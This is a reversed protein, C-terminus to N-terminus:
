LLANLLASAPHTLNQASFRGAQCRCSFGTALLAPVHQQEVKSRWNQDYLTQSIAMNETEHGFLGAMGCCGLNEVQLIMGFRAFAAVWATVASPALSRETCHQALRYRTSAVPLQPLRDAADELWEPLTQVTWGAERGLAKPYEHRFMLTTAPDLGLLVAGADSLRRLDRDMREATRQFAEMKGLVHHVKGSPRYALVFVTQGLKQLLRAHDLAVQADYFPVFPDQVIVVPNRARRAVIAEASLTDISLDRLGNQFARGQPEPLDALGMIRAVGKQVIKRRMMPRIIPAAWAMAPVAAEVRALLRHSFPRPHRQHYWDLFASRMDPIDIRVPCGGGACAKCSLCKDMSQKLGPVIAQLGAEDNLSRLRLWERLLAARGKPSYRRDMTARYSPCMVAASDLGFCNGNGNCHLARAFDDRAQPDIVAEFAGRMAPDDLSLIPTHGAPSAIKGPNLRNLPDFLTKVAEMVGVLNDGIVEASYEGRFGKGHEGWFLGGHRRTLAFVRDSITRILGRDAPDQMDLLPRMHVVGVDAHGFMGVDVGDLLLAQQLEAIFDALAEPPVVFDEIFPQARRKGQQGLLLGQCAKRLSWIAEVEALARAPTATLFGANGPQDSALLGQFDSLLRDIQQESDAQFEVFHLAQPDAGQGWLRTALGRYASNRVLTLIKDDLFEIASPNSQLLFPVARLATDLSDYGVAVVASFAPIPEIRLTIATMVALTGESGCLLALLDIHGPLNCANLLDYATFGRNLAPFVQRIEDRHPGIIQRLADQLDDPCTMSTVEIERGDALILNLREVWASTKGYIRSGKGSSDNSVMGGITARNTTSVHPPFFFGHPRLFDNLQDRIVGPELTIRRNDPDFALVSRMHKSCDIVIDEGLSQGNCSTGGGRPQFRIQHHEPQNATRMATAIDAADRPFIVAQPLLQYISNDTSFSVRHAPDDGIEGRFGAQHLAALYRATTPNIQSIGGRPMQSVM